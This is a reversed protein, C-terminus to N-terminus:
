IIRNPYSLWLRIAVVVFMLCLALGLLAGGGGVFVLFEREPAGQKCPGVLTCITGFVTVGAIITALWAVAGTLVLWLWDM